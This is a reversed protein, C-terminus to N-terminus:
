ASLVISKFTNGREQYDAFLDFSKAGPSLLCIKGKPTMSIGTRVIDEFNQRHLIRKEPFQIDRLTQTIADFSEGDPLLLLSETEDKLFTLLCNWNDGSPRGGLLISGLDNKFFKVAALSAGQNSAISDNVFRVGNKEAFLEMRHPLGKFNRATKEVIEESIKLIECLSQITGLNERFHDARFVSNEPFISKPLPPSLVLRAHIWSFDIKLGTKEPVILVDEEQQHRWLNSKARFYEDVTKHRELHDPFLNLFIAIHPSQKVFELQFSSLEAIIFDYQPLDPLLDLPPVGFNGAIAVNKGANQLLEQCFKTTTSKGKTGTIGVTKRREEESINELFFETQSTIKEAPINQLKRIPVGPSRFIFDFTNLDTIRSFEERHDDFIHIQLNPFHHTLFKETSQGEVGYGYILISKAKKLQEAKM